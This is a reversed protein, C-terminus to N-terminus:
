QRGWVEASHHRADEMGPRKEALLLESAGDVSSEAGRLQEKPDPREREADGSQTKMGLREAHKRIQSKRAKGEEENHETYGPRDGSEATM